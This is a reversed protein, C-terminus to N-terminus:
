GCDGRRGSHLTLVPIDNRLCFEKLQVAVTGYGVWQEGQDVVRSGSANRFRSFLYDNDSLGMSDVYWKLVEPM